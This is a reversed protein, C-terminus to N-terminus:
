SRRIELRVLNASKALDLLVVQHVDDPQTSIS